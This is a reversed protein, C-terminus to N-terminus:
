GAILKSLLHTALLAVVFRGGLLARKVYLDAYDERSPSLIIADVGAFAAGVHAPTCSSLAMFTSLMKLCFPVSTAVIVGSALM